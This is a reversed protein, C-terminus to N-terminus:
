ARSGVPLLRELAVKAQLGFPRQLVEPTDILLLRERTSGECVVIDGHSVSAM